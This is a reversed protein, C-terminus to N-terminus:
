PKDELRKINSKYCGVSLHIKKGIKKLYLLKTKVLCCMFLEVMFGLLALEVKGEM